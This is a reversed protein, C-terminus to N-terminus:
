DVEDLDILTQQFPAEFKQKRRRQRIIDKRTKRKEQASGLILNHIELPSILTRGRVRYSINFYPALVRNILFDDKKTEYKLKPDMPPKKQLYSYNLAADFISKADSPIKSYSTEFHTPEPEILDPTLHLERFITGIENIFDQVQMGLNGPIRTIDDYQLEAHHKVGMDQYDVEVPKEKAPEYGYNTATNLAQNCLEIANRIIGSSLHIFVDIGVYKKESRYDNYLQFLLNLANKQYLRLYQDNKGKEFEECMKRIIVPEYGRYYLLMNLKEAIPNNPYKLCGIVNLANEGSKTGKLFTRFKDWHKERNKVLEVAEDEISVNPFLQDIDSVGKNKFEDSKALRKNLINKILNCYDRKKGSHAANLADTINIARFDHIEQLVEGSEGVPLIKPMYRTGVKFIVPTEDSDKILKGICQKQYDNLYELEDLLIFLNKGRLFQLEGFVFDSLGFIMNKAVIVPISMVKKIEDMSCYSSKEFIVDFKQLIDEKILRLASSFSNKEIRLKPETVQNIFYECIRAEANDSILGSSKFVNLFKFIQEAVKISLYPIFLLAVEGKMYDYEITRFRLYIGIFSKSKLFAKMEEPSLEEELKHHNLSHKIFYKLQMDISLFKLVMTKGTGRGGILFVPRSGIIDVGSVRRILKELPEYFEYLAEGFDEARVVDFPRKEDFRNKTDEQM